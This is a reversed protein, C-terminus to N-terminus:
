KTPSSLNSSTPSRLQRASRRRVGRPTIIRELLASARQSQPRLAHATEAYTKAEGRRGDRLLIPALALHVSAVRGNLEISRKFAKTAFDLDKARRAARGAFFWDDWAALGQPEVKALWRQALAHADSASGNNLADHACVLEEYQPSVGFESQLRSQSITRDPELNEADESYGFFAFDDAYISRVIAKTKESYHEAIKHQASTRHPSYTLITDADAGIAELVRRLDEDLSEQHCIMQYRFAAPAVVTTQPVWHRDMEPPLETALASIFQDFHIEADPDLGHRKAFYAKEKRNGVIKDLYASLVRVYPNRVLTFLPASRLIDLIPPRDIDKYTYFYQVKASSHPNSLSKLGVSDAYVQALTKQVTSCGTKAVSIYTCRGDRMGRFGSNFFGLYM